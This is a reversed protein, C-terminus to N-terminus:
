QNQPQEHDESTGTFAQAIRGSRANVVARAFAYAESRWGIRRLADIIFLMVEEDERIDEELHQQPQIAGGMKTASLSNFFLFSLFLLRYRHM